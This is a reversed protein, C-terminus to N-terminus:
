YSSKSENLVLLASLTGKGQKVGISLPLASTVLDMERNGGDREIPNGNISLSRSVKEGANKTFYLIFCFFFIM